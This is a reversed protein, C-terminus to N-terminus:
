GDGPEKPSAEAGRTLTLAYRTEREQFGPPGELKEFTSRMWRYAPPPPFKGELRDLNRPWEEVFRVPEGVAIRQRLAADDAADRKARCAPCYRAGTLGWYLESNDYRQRAKEGCGPCVRELWAGMVAGRRASLRMLLGSVDAGGCRNPAM